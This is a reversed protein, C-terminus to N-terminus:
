EHSRIPKLSFRNEGAMLNLWQIRQLARGLDRYPVDGENEGSVLDYLQYRFSV